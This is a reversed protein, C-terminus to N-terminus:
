DELGDWLEEWYIEECDNIILQYLVFKNRYSKEPLAFLLKAGWCDGYPWV